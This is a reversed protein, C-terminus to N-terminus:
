CNNKQMIYCFKKNQQEKKKIKQLYNEEDPNKKDSDERDSYDLYKQIMLLIGPMKKEKVFYKCGELSVQLYYNKGTRFVFGLFIVSLFHMSFRRQYKIITFIQASKEMM